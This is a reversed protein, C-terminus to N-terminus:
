PPGDGVAATAGGGGRPGVAAGARGGGTTGGPTM